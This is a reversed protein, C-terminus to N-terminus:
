FVNSLHREKTSTILTVTVTVLTTGTLAQGEVPTDIAVLTLTHKYDTIALTEYDINSPNAFLTTGTINYM